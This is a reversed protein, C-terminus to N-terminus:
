EEVLILGVVNGICLLIFYPDLNNIVALFLCAFINILFLTKWKM